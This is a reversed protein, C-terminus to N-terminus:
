PPFRTGPTPQAAEAQLKTASQRAKFGIEAAMVRERHDQDAKQLQLASRLQELEMDRKTAMEILATQKNLEAIHLRTQADLQAMERQAQIKANEIDARPDAPQGGQQQQAQAAQQAQAIEEDSLVLEDAPIMMAQALKRLTEAPKILSGLVPHNTMNALVMLNQAQMERVLLVSSGRADVSFDGKIHEKLSFQMNWDYLRRINPVTVDDDFNKVMRRFVVNVSNMLLTMGQATQTTHAGQDGQALVSVSTEDDILERALQIIGALESQHSDINYTVIGPRGPPADRLRLWAKRPTFEWMGDAPEIVSRDVEIQPGTSLGANDLMMRWAGNLARQTDRMMFPIGYGWISADDKELNFVSYIPEGSDMHGLGIKLIEGQCFWVVIAIESLPDSEPDAMDMRGLGACLDLMDEATVVGRYEWVHYRSDGSGVTEGGLNRLESVYSPLALRPKVRLLRRIADTDFGPQRAMRRLETETMLHREFFDTSEAVSRADPEPFFSWPDVRYFAPRADESWALEHVTAGSEDQRTTWRRRARDSKAVPGKFVGTGIRCADVIVDRAQSSYQCETLQDAIEATMADSRRRAEDMVTQIRLAEEQWQQATDALATHAPDGNAAAANAHAIAKSANEVASQAADALEPVPTPAIGWNKDDTPFLMDILRAECANTKPRTVNIFLSSRKASELDRRLKDDYEGHIQRLDDLWRTEVERRKGVRDEAERELKAVFGEMAQKLREAEKAAEDPTIEIVTVTDPAPGGATMDTPDIAM